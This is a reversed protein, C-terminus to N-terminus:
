QNVGYLNTEDNKGRLKIHNHETIKFRNTSKNMLKFLPESILLHENLPTVKQLIRATTNLTDGQYVIQTKIEGIESGIVTGCNASAKLEPIFGIRDLYNSAEKEISKLLQFFMEICNANKLGDNVKWSIVMLDEVYEYVMGQHSLVPIVLDRYLKNLFQHYKLAGVNELHKESDKVKVFMFIRQEQVPIHYTGKVYDLLVGQGLRQSM